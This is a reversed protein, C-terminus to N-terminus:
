RRILRQRLKKYRGLLSYDYEHGEAQLVFGGLLTRDEVHELTVHKVHFKDKLFEVLKEEQEKAPPTVYRLVAMLGNERRLCYADYANFIDRISGTRQHRCLVKLFNRMDAPFIRDIAREKERLPVSPNQLVGDVEPVDAFIKRTEDISERSVQLEYLARAYNNATETM